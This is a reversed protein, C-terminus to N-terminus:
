KAVFPKHTEDRVREILAPWSDAPGYSITIRESRESGVRFAQTRM